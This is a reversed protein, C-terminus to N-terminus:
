RRPQVEIMPGKRTIPCHHFLGSQQVLGVPPDHVAKVGAIQMKDHSRCRWSSGHAKAHEDISLRRASSVSNVNVVLAVARNGFLPQVLQDSLRVVDSISLELDLKEIRAYLSKREREASKRRLSNVRENHGPSSRSRADTSDPMRLPRM